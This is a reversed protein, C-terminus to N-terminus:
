MSFVVIMDQLYRCNVASNITFIFNVGGKGFPDVYVVSVTTVDCLSWSLSGLLLWLLLGFLLWLLCMVVSLLWLMQMRSLM